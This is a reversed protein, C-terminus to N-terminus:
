TTYSQRRKSGNNGRPPKARAPDVISPHDAADHVHQPRPRAPAIARGLGSVVM